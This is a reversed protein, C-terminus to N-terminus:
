AAPPWAAARCSVGCRRGARGDGGRACARGARGSRGSARSDARSSGRSRLAVRLPVALPEQTVQANQEPGDVPPLAHRRVPERADQLPLALHNHMGGGVRGLGPLRAVQRLSEAPVAVGVEAEDRRGAHLRGVIKGLLRQPKHHDVPADRLARAPLRSASPAFPDPGGACAAGLLVARDELEKM